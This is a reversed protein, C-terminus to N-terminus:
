EDQIDWNILEGRYALSDRIEKAKADHKAYEYGLDEISKNDYGMFRINKKLQYKIKKKELIAAQLQEHLFETSAGVADLIRKEKM